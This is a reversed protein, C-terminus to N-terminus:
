ACAIVSSRLTEAIGSAALYFGVVNTGLCLFICCLRVEVKYQQSTLEQELKLLAAQSAALESQLAAIKAVAADSPMGEEAAAGPQQQQQQQQEQSRLLRDELQAAHRRCSFLLLSEVCIDAAALSV